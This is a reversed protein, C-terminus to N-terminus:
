FIRRCDVHKVTGFVLLIKMLASKGYKEDGHPSIIQFINGQNFNSILLNNTLVHVAWSLYGTGSQSFKGHGM